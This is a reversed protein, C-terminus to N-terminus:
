YKYGPLCNLFLKGPMFTTLKKIYRSAKAKAAPTTSNRVVNNASNDRLPIDYKIAAKPFNTSLVPELLLLESVEMMERRLVAHFRLNGEEGYHGAHWQREPLLLASGFPVHYFFDHVKIHRDPADNRPSKSRRSFAREIVEEVSDAVNAIRLVLGETSLPMHLIYNQKATDGKYALVSDVHVEQHAAGNTSVFGPHFTFEDESEVLERLCSSLLAGFSDLLYMGSVSMTANNEWANDTLKADASPKSKMWNLMYYSAGANDPVPDGRADVKGCWSHRELDISRKGAHYQRQFDESYVHTLMAIMIYHPVPDVLLAGPLREDTIEKMRMQGLQGQRRENSVRNYEVKSAKMEEVTMKRDEEGALKANDGKGTVKTATNTDNMEMEKPKRSNAVGADTTSKIVGKKAEEGSDKINAIKAVENATKINRKSEQDKLKQRAKYARQNRNKMARHEEHKRISAEVVSAQKLKTTVKTRGKPTNKLATKKGEGKM